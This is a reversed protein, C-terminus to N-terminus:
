IKEFGKFTQSPVTFTEFSNRIVEKRDYLVKDWIKDKYRFWPEKLRIKWYGSAEEGLVIAARKVGIVLEIRLNGESSGVGMSTNKYEPLGGKIM